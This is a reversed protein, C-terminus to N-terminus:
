LEYFSKHPFKRKFIQHLRKNIYIYNEDTCLGTDNLCISISKEKQLTQEICNVVDREILFFFACKRRMPYFLNKALQWYRFIYNNVTNDERFRTCAAKLVDPEKEWLEEFVSKLYTQESHYNSFGIFLKKDLLITSVIMGKIGLHLGFWRKPSQRFTERRNFHSNIVGIDALMSMYNGFKDKKTYIPVNLFTENNIDCPLGNRFYYDPKVPSNLLMDDNFYVFHESLGKIKHLHLEITRCNFTPLYEAPIFDAHKVLELKPCDKNIWDPFKGNTVLYVKHVWPAYREVARFWYMFFGTNRFRAKEKHGKSNPSYLALSKQWEPDSSDLWTVVFDIQLENM